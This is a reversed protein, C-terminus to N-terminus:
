NRSIFKLAYKLSSDVLGTFEESFRFKYVPFVFFVAVYFTNIFANIFLSDTKIFYNLIFPILLFPLVKFYNINFPNLKLTFYVVITRLINYLFISLFTAFAAGIYGYHSIFYYNSAIAVIALFPMLFINWRYYKSNQIIESNIGLALDILKALSLFLVINKGQAFVDGNPILSFIFDINLWLLSFLISGIILLNIASKKYLDDVEEIQNESLKKAIVPVVLAIIPRKPIEIVTAIALAITYIGVLADSKTIGEIMVTDLKSVLIGSGAGVLLFGGYTLIEKFIPLKTISLNAKIPYSLNTKFNYFLLLFHVVQSLVFGYLVGTFDIINFYYLFLFVVFLLKQVINRAISSFLIISKTYLYSEFISIYINSILVIVILNFNPLDWFKYLLLYGILVTILPIILLLSIFSGYHQKEKEFHFYFMPVIADLSIIFFPMVLIAKDFVLRIAGIEADSLVKTQIFLVSILGILVGVYNVLTTKISNKIIIGM